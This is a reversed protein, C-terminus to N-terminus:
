LRKRQAADADLSRKTKGKWADEVFMYGILVAMLGYVRLWARGSRGEDWLRNIWTSEAGTNTHREWRPREEEQLVAGDCLREYASGIEKFRQESTAKSAADQASSVTDPHHAKALRLYASKIEAATARTAPELGLTRLAARCQM